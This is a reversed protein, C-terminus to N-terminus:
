CTNIKDELFFFDRQDVGVWKRIFLCHTNSPFSMQVMMSAKIWSGKRWVTVEFIAACWGLLAHPIRNSFRKGAGLNKSKPFWPLSWFVNCPVCNEAQFSGVALITTLGNRGRLQDIVCLCGKLNVSAGFSRFILVLLCCWPLAKTATSQESIM